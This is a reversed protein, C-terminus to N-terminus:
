KLLAALDEGQLRKFICHGDIDHFPHQCNRLEQILHRIEEENMNGGAKFSTRKALARSLNEIRSYRNGPMQDRYSELVGDLIKKEDVNKLSAPMGNVVLTQRGFDTMDFGLLKLQPLIELILDMDTMSMELVKPFLMEQVHIPRGELAKMNKEYLVRQHAGELEALYIGDECSVLAYRNEIGMCTLVKPQVAIPVPPLILPQQVAESTTNWEGAFPDLVKKWEAGNRVVHSHLLSNNSRWAPPVDPNTPAEKQNPKLIDPNFDPPDIPMYMGLVRRVCALIIPYLAKEEEFKVETKSPHVNVDVAGEPVDIFLFYAPFTEKPLIGEFAKTVAHHFYGDKFFRGNVFFFQEGRTKKAIDPAGVWGHIRGVTTSEDIAKLQTHDRYHFLQCIRELCTGTTLRFVEQEQHYLEVAINPHPIAIRLFDDHIHRSEVPNSKLFNRRAPINFFLQSILFQTGHFPLPVPEQTVVKGGEIRIYTGLEDGERKTKMEVQAVAAVSALAEGRFGKTKIRFLDEAKSLKSTAHREWCMRADVPSMGKGNDQIRISTKGADKVWIKISTAGADVANEMLEKVISAPRQVVEGAAIQNSVHEPLLKILNEM